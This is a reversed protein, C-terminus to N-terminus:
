REVRQSVIVDVCDIDEIRTAIATAAAAQQKLPQMNDADTDIM